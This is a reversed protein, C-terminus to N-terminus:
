ISEEMCLCLEAIRYVRMQVYVSSRLEKDKKRYMFLVGYNKIRKKQVYVSSRLEKDKKETCLCLEIKYLTLPVSYNTDLESTYHALKNDYM